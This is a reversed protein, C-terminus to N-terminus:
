QAIPRSALPEGRVEKAAIEAIAQRMATTRAAPTHYAAHPENLSPLTESLRPLLRAAAETSYGARAVIYIGLRDAELEAEKKSNGRMAGDHGFLIHSLEHALVFALEDDNLVFRLAGKSIKIRKGNTSARFANGGSLKVPYGCLEPAATSSGQPPTMGDPCMHAVGRMLRSTVVALRQQELSAATGASDDFSGTRADNLPACAM